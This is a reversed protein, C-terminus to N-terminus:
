PRDQRISCWLLGSKAKGRGPIFTEYSGAAMLGVFAGRAKFEYVGGTVNGSDAVTAKVTAEFSGTKPDIVFTGGDVTGKLDTHNNSVKGGAVVKGDAVEFSLFARNQWAEGGTLGDELKLTVQGATPLEPRELVDGDLSKAVEAGGARGSYRGTIEQGRITADIELRCAIPKRDKPIWSDPQIVVGLSGKLADATLTLDSTDLDHTANNFNPTAGYGNVIKGDATLLHLVLFKGPALTDHLVVRIIAHDPKVPGVPSLRAIFSGEVGKGKEATPTLVTGAMTDGIMAGQFRWPLTLTNGNQQTIEVTMEGGVASGRRQLGAKSVRAAYSVDVISGRPYVQAGYVDKGDFSFAATARRRSGPESDPLVVANELQVEARFPPEIPRLVSGKLGAKARGMVYSGDITGDAKAFARFTLRYQTPDGERPVFGDSAISVLLDAELQNGSIKVNTVEAAHVGRNYTWALAFAAVVKGEDTALRVHLDKGGPLLGAFVLEMQTDAPPAAEDAGAPLHQGLISLLGCVFLITRCRM